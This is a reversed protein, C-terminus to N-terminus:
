AVGQPLDIVTDLGVCFSSTNGVVGADSTPLNRNAVRQVILLPAIIQEVRRRILDCSSSSELRARVQIESLIPIFLVATMSGAALPVIVLLSAAAYLACSEVLMAIIVRHLGSIKAQSGLVPCVKRALLFIRIAIMFTLIINLSLSISYFPLAEFWVHVGGPLCMAFIGMATNDANTGFGATM